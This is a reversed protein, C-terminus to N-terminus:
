LGPPHRHTIALAFHAHANGAVTPEGAEVGRPVPGENRDARDIRESELAEVHDLDVDFAVLEGDELSGHFGQAAESRDEHELAPHPHPLLRLRGDLEELAHTIPQV